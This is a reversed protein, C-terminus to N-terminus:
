RLKNQFRPEFDIDVWSIRETPKLNTTILLRFLKWSKGRMKKIYHWHLGDDSGQLAFEVSGKEYHGRIRIDKIGKRVDPMGLVFPRTVICGRLTDQQEDSSTDLITSLDYIKSCSVSEGQTVIYCPSIISFYVCHYNLANLFYEKDQMTGGIIEVEIEGAAFAILNEAVLLSPSTTCNFEEDSLAAVTNAADQETLTTPEDNRIFYSEINYEGEGLVYSEPYSNIPANLLLGTSIKHWTNTDLKYVYQFHKNSESIFVLRKGTYDYACSADQMFKMFADTDTLANIQNASYGNEGLIDEFIHDIAYHEGNMNPSINVVESGSLMMVGKKTIFIVANDISTISKPNSCVERSLPKNTVFSGDAATEMAWIGDETFVYLPFQGFQGQSLATTAMAVGLIKSQFTFRGEAPYVFPNSMASLMTQNSVSYTNNEEPSFEGDGIVMEELLYKDLGLFAYSCSLNPHQHMPIRTYDGAPDIVLVEYCNPDPYAIWAMPDAYFSVEIMGTYGNTVFPTAIDVSGNADRAVVSFEEGNNRRIFFKYRYKKLTTHDIVDSHAVRSNSFLGNNLAYPAPFKILNANILLRSNFPTMESPIVKHSAMYDSTLMEREVLSSTEEDIDKHLDIGQKLSDLDRAAVSVIKFFNGKSLVEAKIIEDYEEYGKFYIKGGGDNCSEFDSNVTPFCIDTSIFIDVGEIIDVWDEVDWSILKAIAKYYHEINFNISSILTSSTTLTYSGTATLWEKTGAGLLIPVSHFVYSGDYLRIAYRVFRPCTFYDWKEIKSKLHGVKLWFDNKVKTLYENENDEGVERAAKEWLAKDFKALATVSTSSSSDLSIKGRSAGRFVDDDNGLTEFHIIPVPLADGIYVYSDNKWLIYYVSLSTSVIIINGISNIDCMTENVGLTLFTEKKKDIIASVEGGEQIIFHEYNATKHIFIRDAQLGEPLGLSETVDKPMLAPASEDNDLYLNLSESCGGDETMRDSPTRSIGRLQIQKIM